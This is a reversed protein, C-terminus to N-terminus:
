TEISMGEKKRSAENSKFAQNKKTIESVASHPAMRIRFGKSEVSRADKERSSDAVAM